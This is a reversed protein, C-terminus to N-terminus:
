ESGLDELLDEITMLTLTFDDNNQSYEKIFTSCELYKVINAWEEQGEM